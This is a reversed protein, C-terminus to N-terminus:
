KKLFDMKEDQKLNYRHCFGIFMNSTPKEINFEIQNINRGILYEKYPNELSNIGEEISSSYFRFVYEDIEEVINYYRGLETNIFDNLEVFDTKEKNLFISETSLLNPKIDEFLVRFVTDNTSKNNKTLVKIIKEQEYSINTIDKFNMKELFSDATKTSIYNNEIGTELMKAISPTLNTYLIPQNIVKELFIENFQKNEEWNTIPNLVRIIEENQGQKSRENLFNDNSVQTEWDPCNNLLDVLVDVQSLNTLPSVPIFPHTKVWGGTVPGIGDIFKQEIDINHKKVYDNMEKGYLNYDWDILENTKKNFM